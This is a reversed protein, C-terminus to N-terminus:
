RIPSHPQLIEEIVWNGYPKKSILRNKLTKKDIRLFLLTQRLSEFVHTENTEIDMIKFSRKPHFQIENAQEPWEKDSKQRFIFGNCSKIESQRFVTEISYLSVGTRVSLESLTEGEIVLGDNLNRAQYPGSLRNLNRDSLLKGDYHWESHDDKFKLEFRNKLLRPVTVGDVIKFVAKYRPLGISLLASSMSSFFTISGTKLDKLKCEVNDTRLGTDRAHINNSRSTSWELNCLRYDTKVGNKHNVFPLTGPDCNHVFARALLIHLCVSRWRDKDADYINVYPYGYASISQKLIRNHQLSKVVGQKSIAFRTFGPIIRFDKDLVIPRKFVMLHECRLNLVKSKNLVFEIKSLETLPLTVEYHTLLGLWVRNYSYIRGHIEILIDTSDSPIVENKFRCAGTSSFEYDNNYPFIKFM